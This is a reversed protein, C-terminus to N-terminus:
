AIDTNRNEYCGGIRCFHTSLASNDSVCAACLAWFNCLLASYSPVYIIQSIFSVVIFVIISGCYAPYLAPCYRKIKKRESIIAFTMYTYAFFGILGYSWYVELWDNHAAGGLNSLSASSTYVGHGIIHEIIDNDRINLLMVKYIELRGSGGDEGISVLRNIMVEGFKNMMIYLGIISVCGITLVRRVMKSTMKKNKMEHYTYIITALALALFAGRKNTMLVPLLCICIGGYLFLKKNQCLVFPLILVFYYCTNLYLGNTRRLSFTAYMFLMFLIVTMVAQIQIIHSKCKRDAKKYSEYAAIFVVPFYLQNIVDAASIGHIFLEAVVVITYLLFAKEIHPIAKKPTTLFNWIITLFLFIVIAARITSNQFRMNYVQGIYLSLYMDIFLINVIPLINRSRITM